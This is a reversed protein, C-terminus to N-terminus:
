YGPGDDETLVNGSGVFDESPVYDKLPGYFKRDKCPYAPDSMAAIISEVGNLWEYKRKTEATKNYQAIEKNKEVKALINAVDKETYGGAGKNQVFKWQDGPAFAKNYFNEYEKKVPDQGEEEVVDREKITCPIIITCLFDSKLDEQLEKFNGQFFKNVNYGLTGGESWKIAMCNRMFEMFEAEGAKAKRVTGKGVFWAPLGSEGKGGDYSTRGQNNIWQFSGPTNQSEKDKNEIFFNIRRVVGGEKKVEKVAFELRAVEVGDKDTVFQREVDLDEDKVYFGERKLQENTLNVGVIEALMFGYKKAFDSGPERKEGQVAM